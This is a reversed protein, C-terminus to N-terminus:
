PTLEFEAAYPFGEAGEEAIRVSLAAVTLSAAFIQVASGKGNKHDQLAAQLVDVFHDLTSLRTPNPYKKRARILEASIARLTEARM